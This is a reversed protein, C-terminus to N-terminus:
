CVMIYCLTVYCTYNFIISCAIPDYLVVYPINCLMGYHVITYCLVHLIIYYSVTCYIVIHHMHRLTVYRLTAFVSSSSSSSIIVYNSSSSSGGSGGSSSSSSSSAVIIIIIINIITTIRIIHYLMALSVMMLVASVFIAVMTKLLAMGFLHSCVSRKCSGRSQLVAASVASWGSIQHELLRDELPNEEGFSHKKVSVPVM